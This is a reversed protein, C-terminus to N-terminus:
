NEAKNGYPKNCAFCEKNYINMDFCDVTDDDNFQVDVSSESNSEGRQRKRSNEIMKLKKGIEKQKKRQEKKEEREKQKKLKEEQVKLKREEKERKRLEEAKAEDNHGDVFLVVPRKIGREDLGPSFVDELWKVFLESDMWGSETRGLM